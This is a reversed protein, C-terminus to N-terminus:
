FDITDSDFNHNSLNPNYSGFMNHELTNDGVDVEEYEGGKRKSWDSISKTYRIFLIFSVILVIFIVYTM